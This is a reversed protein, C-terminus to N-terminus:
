LRLSDSKDAHLSMAGPEKAGVPEQALGRKVYDIDQRLQYLDGAFGLPLHLRAAATQLAEVEGL